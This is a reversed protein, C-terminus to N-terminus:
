ITSYQIAIIFEGIVLTRMAIATRAAKAFSM